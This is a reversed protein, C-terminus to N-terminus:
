TIGLIKKVEQVREKQKKGVDKIRWKGKRQWFEMLAQAVEKTHEGFEALKVYADLASDESADSLSLLRIARDWPELADLERKQQGAAEEREKALKKAEEWRRADEQAKEAKKRNIELAAQQRMAGDRAIEENAAIQEQMAADVQQVGKEYDELSCDKLIIWGYPLGGDAITRSTGPGKKMPPPNGAVTVCEIHSYRGVRLLTETAPDLRSIRDVVSKLATATGSFHPKTYFKEFEAKFRKVYFENCIERFKQADILGVNPVSIGGKGNIAAFRLRGYIPAKATMAPDLAECPTKPLSKGPVLDVGTAKRISTVGPPLAIDAIKLDRMAHSGIEGFMEKLIGGYERADRSRIDRGKGRKANIYDILPTSLAGKLSSAPIFPLHTFPNRCFSQIEAKNEIRQRKGFLDEGTSYDAVRIKGLLFSALNGSTNLLSRLKAMEGADLAAAVADDAAVSALWATTDILWVEFTGQRSERIVYELPSFDAGSGIHVPTLAELRFPVDLMVGKVSAAPM